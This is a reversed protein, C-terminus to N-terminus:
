VNALLKANAEMVGITLAKIFRKETEIPLSVYITLTGTKGIIREYHALKDIGLLTKWEKVYMKQVVEGKLKLRHTYGHYLSGTEFSISITNM